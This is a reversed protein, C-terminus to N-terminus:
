SGDRETIENVFVEEIEARSREVGEVETIVDEVCVSKLRLYLFLLDWSIDDPFLVLCIFSM